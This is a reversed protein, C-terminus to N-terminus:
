KEKKRRSINIQVPPESKFSEGNNKNNITDELGLHRVMATSNLLGVATLEFKQTFIVAEVWEIAEIWEEDKEKIATAKKNYLFKEGINLFLCMATVTYPRAMPVSFTTGAKDGSKIVEAKYIPNENYSKFYECAADVFEKATTYLTRRFYPENEWAWFVKDRTQQDAQKSKAM